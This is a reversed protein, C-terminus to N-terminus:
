RDARDAARAARTPRGARVDLLEVGVGGGAGLVEVAAGAALDPGPEGFPPAIGGSTM